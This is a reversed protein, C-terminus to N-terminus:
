WNLEARLGAVWANDLAADAGPHIIYQLDPQLALHGNLEARWTIELATEAALSGPTHRRYVRSVHARALGASIIDRPRWPVVGTVTLGAGIYHDLMNRDAAALGLQLFADLSAGRHRWLRAQAIAYLGHNRDRSRGAPDTYRSTRYWGGVALKYPTDGAVSIGGEVAAFVGEGELFHIQTGYPHGPLGPVGDFVGGMVYAGGASEWSVEGGVAATPFIGAGAQAIVPDIGFSSNILTGAADLVNFRANFDQLGVRVELGGAFRHRYWAEFVKFTNVAEVNDLTQLDGAQNSISGGDTGLLDLFFRSDASGGWVRGDMDLYLDLRGPGAGGRHRGGQLNHFYDQAFNVGAALGPSLEAAPAEPLSLFALCLIFVLWVRTVM